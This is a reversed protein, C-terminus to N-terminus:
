LFLGSALSLKFPKWGGPPDWEGDGYIVGDNIHHILVGDLGCIPSQWVMGAAINLLFVYKYTTVLVNESLRDDLLHPVPYLHGVFDDLYISQNQQTAIEFLHIHQGAMIAVYRENCLLGRFGSALLFGDKDIEIFIHLLLVPTENNCILVRASEDGRLAFPNIDREPVSYERDWENKEKDLFRAHYPM